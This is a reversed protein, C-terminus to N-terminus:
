SHEICLSLSKGSPYVVLWICTIWLNCNHWNMSTPVQLSVYNQLVATKQYHYSKFTLHLYVQSHTIRLKLFTRSWMRYFALYIFTKSKILIMSTYQQFHHLKIVLKRISVAFSANITQLSLAISLVMWDRSMFCITSVCSKLSKRLSIILCKKYKRVAIKVNLSEQWKTNDRWVIWLHKVTRFQLM